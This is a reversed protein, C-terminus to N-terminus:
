FLSEEKAKRKEEYEERLLEEIEQRPLNKEGWPRFRIMERKLNHM